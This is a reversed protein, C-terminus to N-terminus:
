GAATDTRPPLEWAKRELQRNHTLVKFSIFLAVNEIDRSSFFLLLIFTKRKKEGLLTLVQRYNGLRGRWGVTTHAFWTLVSIIYQSDHFGEYLLGNGLQQLSLRM